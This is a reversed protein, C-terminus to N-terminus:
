DVKNNKYFAIFFKVNGMPILYHPAKPEIIGLTESNLKIREKTNSQIVYIIEGSLITIEGWVGELTQHNKLLGQPITKENFIKSQKYKTFGNPIKKM